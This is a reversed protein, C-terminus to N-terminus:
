NGPSRLLSWLIDGTNAEPHALVHDMLRRQARGIEIDEYGAQRLQEGSIALSRVDLCPREALVTRLAPTHQRAGALADAAAAACWATATGQRHCLVRWDEPSAPLTGSLARDVGAAAPEIVRKPLRMARLFRPVDPLCGSRALLAAFGAWRGDERRPTKKVHWLPLRVAPRAALYPDLLGLPLADALRGAGDSLLIKQLEVSVREPSLRATLPACAAIADWTDQEIGFGLVTSFRFARWMRLADEQFRTQADGVCRILKKEMDTRGGFPDTLAGTEDLAMANITFDRRSLDETLSRVFQVEDPHRGDSYVGEARFTTVEVPTKGCMVTVTGHKLGTAFCRDFLALVQEPRAETSVDWDSPRRGMLLDRVCGGVFYACFGGERLRSIVWM